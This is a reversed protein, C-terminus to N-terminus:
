FIIKLIEKIGCYDTTFSAWAQAAVGLALQARCGRSCGSDFCLARDMGVTVWKSTDTVEQWSPRLGRERSAAAGARTLRTQGRSRSGPCQGSQRQAEQVQSRWRSWTM